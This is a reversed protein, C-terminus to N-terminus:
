VLVVLLVDLLRILLSADVLVHLHRLVHEVGILLRLKLHVPLLQLSLVLLSVVRIRQVIADVLAELRLGSALQALRLLVRLHESLAGLEVRAGDLESLGVDALVLDHLLEALAGVAFDVLADVRFGVGDHRELGEEEFIDGVSDVVRRHPFNRKQLLQGFVGIEDSQEIDQLLPARLRVFDVAHELEALASEERTELLPASGQLPLLDLVNHHLQELGDVDQVAFHDEMAVDLGFVNQDGAVPHELQGVKSKGLLRAEQLSPLTVADHTEPVPCGLDNQSTFIVQQANVHPRQSAQEALEHLGLGDVEAFAVVLNEVTGEADEASGGLIVAGEVVLQLLPAVELELHVRLWLVQLVGERVASGLSEVKEVLHHIQVRLLSDSRFLSESM